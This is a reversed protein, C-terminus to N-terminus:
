LVIDNNLVTEELVNIVDYTREIQMRDDTRSQCWSTWIEAFSLRYEERRHIGHVFVM